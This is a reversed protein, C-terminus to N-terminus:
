IGVALPIRGDNYARFGAGSVSYMNVNWGMVNNHHIYDMNEAVSSPALDDNFYKSTSLEERAEQSLEFLGNKEIQTITSM